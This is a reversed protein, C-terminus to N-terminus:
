SRGVPSGRRRTAVAVWGGAALLALSLLQGMTLSGLLFGLQRDPERTFEVLFRLAGYALLFAATQRGERYRTARGVLWVIAGLIPGELLAEYLQSPHRPMSGAGPFVMAWPVGSVRGYLEGNVFNALRGFFLGPTVALALADGLRLLPVSRRRSFIWAAAVVGLLGGHFSMGGEWVAVVRLPHDIFYPLNYFLVYGLRGGLVVGGVLASLLDGVGAATLPIRGRAATRRLIGYGALFGLLYAIGYWRVALPGVRLAVPDISPYPIM